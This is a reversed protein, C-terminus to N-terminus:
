WIETKITTRTVQASAPKLESILQVQYWLVFSLSWSKPLTTLSWWSIKGFSKMEQLVFVHLSVVAPFCKICTFVHSYVLLVYFMIITVIFLQSKPLIFVPNHTHTHTHTYQLDQNFLCCKWKAALDLSCLLLLINTLAATEIYKTLKTFTHAPSDKLKANVQHCLFLLLLKLIKCTSSCIILHPRSEDRCPIM